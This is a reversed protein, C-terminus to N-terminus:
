SGALNESLGSNDLRAFLDGIEDSAEDPVSYTKLTSSVQLTHAIMTAPEISTPADVALGSNLSANINHMSSVVYGMLALNLLRKSRKGLAIRNLECCLEPHASSSIRVEFRLFEDPYLPTQKCQTDQSNM